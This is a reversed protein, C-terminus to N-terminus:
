RRLAALFVCSGGDSCSPGHFSKAIATALLPVEHEGCMGAGSQQGSGGSFSTVGFICRTSDAETTAIPNASITIIIV